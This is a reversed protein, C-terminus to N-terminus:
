GSVLIEKRYRPCWVVHYNINYVTSSRKGM